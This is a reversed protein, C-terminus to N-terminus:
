FQPIFSSRKEQINVALNNFKFPTSYVILDIVCWDSVKIVVENLTFIQIFHFLFLTHKKFILQLITLYVHHLICLCIQWAVTHFRRIQCRRCLKEYFFELSEWEECGMNGEERLAPSIFAFIPASRMDIPKPAPLHSISLFIPLLLSAFNQYRPGFPCFDYKTSNIPFSSEM